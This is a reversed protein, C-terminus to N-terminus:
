SPDQVSYPESTPTGTSFPQGGRDRGGPPGSPEATRAEAREAALRAVVQLIHDNAPADAVHKNRHAFQVLGGRFRVVGGTDIVFTGPMQMFSGGKLGRQRTEPSLEARLWPLATKPSLVQMVKGQMLGYARYASREQDLLLPFPVRKAQLFAVADEHNGHGVLVVRADSDRFREQDRRLAVVQAQCFPCGFYRLFVIVAPRDTWLSSLTVDRGEPDMLLADPALDGVEPGSM